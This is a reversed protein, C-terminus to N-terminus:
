LNDGYFWASYVFEHLWTTTKYEVFIQMNKSSRDGYMMEIRENPRFPALTAKV